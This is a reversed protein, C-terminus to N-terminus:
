HIGSRECCTFKTKIMQWDNVNFVTKIGDVMQYCHASYFDIIKFYLCHKYKTVPM